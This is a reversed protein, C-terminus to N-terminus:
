EGKLAETPEIRLGRRAPGLAAFLGVLNMVAVMVFLLPGGNGRLVEGQAAGDIM